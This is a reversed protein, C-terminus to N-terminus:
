LSIRVERIKGPDFVFSQLGKEHRLLMKSSKELYTGEFASSEEEKNLKFSVAGRWSSGVCTRTMIMLGYLRLKIERQDPPRTTQDGHEDELEPEGKVVVLEHKDRRLKNQDTIFRIFSKNGGSEGENERCSTQIVGNERGKILNSWLDQEGLTFSSQLDFKFAAAKQELIKHSKRFVCLSGGPEFIFQQLGQVVRLHEVLSFQLCGVSRILLDCSLTKFNDGQEVISLVVEPAKPTGGLAGDEQKTQHPVHDCEVQADEEQELQDSLSDEQCHIVLEPETQKGEGKATISSEEKTPKFSGEFGKNISKDLVLKMKEAQEPRPQVDPQKTEEHLKLDTPKRRKSDPRTPEIVILGQFAQLLNQRLDEQFQQSHFYDHQARRNAEQVLQYERELEAQEKIRRM